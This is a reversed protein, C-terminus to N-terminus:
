LETPDKGHGRALTCVSKLSWFKWSWLAWLHLYLFYLIGWKTLTFLQLPAVGAQVGQNGPGYTRGLQSRAGCLTREVYVAHQLITGWGKLTSSGHQCKLEAKLFLSNLMKQPWSGRSPITHSIVLPGMTMPGSWVDKVTFLTWYKSTLSHSFGQRHIPCEM